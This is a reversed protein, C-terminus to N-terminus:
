IEVVLYTFRQIKLHKKDSSNQIEQFDSLTHLKTAEFMILTAPFLVKRIFFLLVYLTKSIQDYFDLFKAILRKFCYTPFDTQEM